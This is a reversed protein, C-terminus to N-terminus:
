KPIYKIREPKKSLVISSGNWKYTLTTVHEPCCHPGESNKKIQLTGNKIRVDYIASWLADSASKYYKEYDRDMDRDTIHSILFEKGSKYSYIFIENLGFNAISIGCATHVVAEENGDGTLDGYIIKNNVVGFYAYGSNEDNGRRSEFQGGNVQVINPIGDHGYEKHCLTSPYSFNLFNISRISSANNDKAVSCVPILLVFFVLSLSLFYYLQKKM